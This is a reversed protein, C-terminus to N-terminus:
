PSNTPPALDVRYISVEANAYVQRLYPSAPPPRAGLSREYPGYVVYRINNSVLFRARVEDDGDALFFRQMGRLKDWSDLTAVWHGVFVRGPVIGAFYNGTHPESLLVDESDMVVALWRAAETLSVPYFVGASDVRESPDWMERVMAVYLLLTSGFLLQGLCVLTVPRMLALPFRRVRRAWRWIPELGVAAVVGLMPHLGFAFRRQVSVPLYMLVLSVAIWVVVLWGGPTPQRLFRPFGLAALGLVAGFGVVLEPLQASYQINQQGYAASWFPDGGFVLVSYVLFPSAVLFVMAASLLASRPPTRRRIWMATLHAAIVAVLTVLSYPHTLGLCLVTLGAAAPSRLGPASWSALYSRGSLLLLALGLAVHPATFMVVFTSLEPRRFEATPLKFDAGVILAGLVLSAALGSSLVILVLALRREGVNSLVERCFLYISVLLTARAAIEALHFALQFEVGLVGALKGLAVYFTYMLAPAHPESTLHDHILWSASAAGERMAASYQAFDDPAWLMGVFARGRFVQSYAFLYPIEILLLSALTVLIVWRWEASVLCAFARPGVGARAGPLFRTAPWNLGRRGSLEIM